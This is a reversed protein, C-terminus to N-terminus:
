RRDIKELHKVIRLSVLVGTNSGIDRLRLIIWRRTEMKTAPSQRIVALRWALMYGGSVSAYTSFSCSPESKAPMIDLSQPKTALIDDGLSSLTQMAAQLTLTMHELASPALEAAIVKEM